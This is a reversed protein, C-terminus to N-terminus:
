SSSREGSRMKRQVWPTSFKGLEEVRSSIPEHLHKCYGPHRDQCRIKFKLEEDGELIGLGPDEVFATRGSKIEEGLPRAGGRETMQQMFTSVYRPDVAWINRSNSLDSPPPPAGAPLEPEVDIPAAGLQMQELAQLERTQDRRIRLQELEVASLNRFEAAWTSELGGETYRDEWTAGSMRRKTRQEGCYFWLLSGRGRPANPNATSGAAAAVAADAEELRARRMNPPKRLGRRRLFERVICLNEFSAQTQLIDRSHGAGIARSLFKNVLHLIEM